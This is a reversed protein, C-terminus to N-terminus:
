DYRVYLDLEQFWEYMEQLTADPNQACLEEFYQLARAYEDRSALIRAMRERLEDAIMCSYYVEELANLLNPVRPGSGPRGGGRGDNYIPNGNKDHKRQRFSRAESQLDQDVLAPDFNINPNNEWQEQVMKLFEYQADATGPRQNDITNNTRLRDFSPLIKKMAPFLYKRKIKNMRQEYNPNEVENYGIIEGKDNLEWEEGGFEKNDINVGHMIAEETFIDDWNRPDLIATETQVSAPNQTNFSGPKMTKNISDCIWIAMQAANKIQRNAIGANFMAGAWAANEKYSSMARSITTSYRGLGIENRGQPTIIDGPNIGSMISYIDNIPDGIPIDFNSILEKIQAADDHNKGDDGTGRHLRAIIEGKQDKIDFYLGNEDRKDYLVLKEPAKYLAEGHITELNDKGDKLREGNKDLAWGDGDVKYGMMWSRLEAKNFGNLASIKSFGINYEARKKSEVKAAQTIVKNYLRMEGEKKDHAVSRIYRNFAEEDKPKGNADRKNAKIYRDTLFDIDDEDDMEKLYLARGYDMWAKESQKALEKDRFDNNFYAKYNNLAHESHAITSKSILDYNRAAKANRTYRSTRKSNSTIDGIQSDAIKRQVYKTNKGTVVTMANKTDEERLAKRKALFQALKASPTTGNALMNARRNDRHSEAWVRNRALPKAAMGRLKTNVTGLITGSMKMLQWSFFLPFIQVAVGLLIGFGDNASAIIAFGALSSAGFLVSFMPYFVLMKTLLQRWKKFLNETNPLVNAVIALPAVMILLTVLAQRMAITILGSAVAVIAGLVVPILMWIAGSEFAIFGAATAVTAGSALSSYMNAYALKEARSMDGNVVVETSGAAISGFATEQVAVFLGRLSEGIINSVDVALSCILFSLNVLVAAIILKPLAKKIGYNAIGVGTLQSYIVVLLFIIFIINTVDRCYKWIEYIPSGDEMTIPNIVLVKQLKDYLWDVAEAIKGTAPCVLWGVSGLSEQCGEDTLKSAALTINSKKSDENEGNEEEKQDGNEDKTEGNEGDKNENSEDTVESSTPEDGPEAYAVENSLVLGTIGAFFGMLVLFCGFIAKKFRSKLDKKAKM